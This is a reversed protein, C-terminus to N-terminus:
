PFSLHSGMRMSVLDGLVNTQHFSTRYSGSNLFVSIITGVIRALECYSSSEDTRATSLLNKLKLVKKKSFDNYHHRDCFGSM